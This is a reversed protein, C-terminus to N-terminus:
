AERACAQAAPRRREFALADRVIQELRDYRPRWGLTAGIQRADAVVTPPDGPRRPREEVALARGGVRAVTDFVERVSYGRGYGCNLIRSPGDALLYELARLHADALDSVHIFDRICTGDATPYDTGFLPVQPRRGLAAECAIRILHRAGEAPPSVRGAPDGGAVNFYRLIVSRLGHAAGADILMRETMLKSWGYPSIPRLPADEGVPAAAEPVGYVAATSSFILAEVGAAVCREILAHSALTNNRYYLLPARISEEVRISGAFHLVAKFTRQAFLDDLLQRDAVSGQVLFVEPPLAARSGTSLDDLAVVPWGAAHLALVVHSGIYGAGGTVLVPSPGSVTSMIVV